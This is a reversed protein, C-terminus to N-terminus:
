FKVFINSIAPSTHNDAASRYLVTFLIKKRGIKLEVVISKDFSLDESMIVMDLTQQIIQLCLHISM